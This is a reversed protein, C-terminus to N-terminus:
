VVDRRSQLEAAHEESRSMQRLKPPGTLGSAGAPRSQISAPQRARRFKALQRIGRVTLGPRELGAIHQLIAQRDRWEARGDGHLSRCRTPYPFLAAREPR